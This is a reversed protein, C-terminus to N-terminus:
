QWIQMARPWCSRQVCWLCTINNGNRSSAQEIIRLYRCISCGRPTSQWMCSLMSVLLLRVDDLHGGVEMYNYKTVLLCSVALM